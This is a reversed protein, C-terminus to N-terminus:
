VEESARIVMFSQTRGPGSATVAQSIIQDSTLLLHKNILENGKWNSLKYLLLCYQIFVMSDFRVIVVQKM